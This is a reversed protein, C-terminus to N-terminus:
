SIISRLPRGPIRDLAIGLLLAGLFATPWRVLNDRLFGNPVLTEFPILVLFALHSVYIGISNRGAADLFRGCPRGGLMEPERLIWLIAACPLAIRSLTFFPLHCPSGAMRSRLVGEAVMGVFAAFVWAAPTSPLRRSDASPIAAGLGFCLFALNPGENPVLGWPLKGGLFEHIALGLYLSAGAFLFPKFSRSARWSVWAAFQSAIISPLFWLHYGATEVRGDSLSVFRRLVVFPEVSNGRMWDIALYLLFWPAYLVALRRIGLAMSRADDRGEKWRSGAFMGSALFFFPVAAQCVLQLLWGASRLSEVSSHILPPAHILVVLLAGIGRMRDLAENRRM